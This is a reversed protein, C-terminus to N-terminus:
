GYFYIKLQCDPTAVSAKIRFDELELRTYLTFNGLHTIAEGLTPETAGDTHWRAVIDVDAACEVSVVAKTANAPIELFPGFKDKPANMFRMPKIYVLDEDPKASSPFSLHLGSNVPM